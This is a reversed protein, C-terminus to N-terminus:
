DTNRKGNRPPWQRSRRFRSEGERKKAKPTASPAGFPPRASAEDFLVPSVQRRKVQPLSISDPAASSTMQCQTVKHQSYFCLLCGPVLSVIDDTAITLFYYAKLPGSPTRMLAHFAQSSKSRPMKTKFPCICSKSKTKFSVLGQRRHFAISGRAGQVDNESRREERKEM